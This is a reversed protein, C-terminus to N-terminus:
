FKFLNYLKYIRRRINSTIFYKKFIKQFFTTFRRKNGTEIYNGISVYIFKIGRFYILNKILIYILSKDSSM